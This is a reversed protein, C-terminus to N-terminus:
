SHQAVARHIAKLITPYHCCRCLHRDLRSRIEAESPHPKENLLAVAGLIMGPTCFGCQFANEALFAEQVPHLTEGQALGEITVVSTEDAEAVPTVCSAVAKGDVLVTCARCQGEGCGYKPGTLKLDERLVDLLSRQPDTTVTRKRGNVTITMTMDM